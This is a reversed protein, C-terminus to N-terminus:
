QQRIEGISDRKWRRIADDGSIAVETQKSGGADADTRDHTAADECQGSDRKRRRAWGCDQRKTEIADDRNQGRETESLHCRLEGLRAPSVSEAAFDKRDFGGECHAPDNPKCRDNGGNKVRDAESTERRQQQAFQERSLTRDRM